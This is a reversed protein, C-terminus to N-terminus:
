LYLEDGMLAIQVDLRPNHYRLERQMLAAHSVDWFENANRGFEQLHSLIVRSPSLSLIFRCFPEILPLEEKLACGRGLWVHAFLGDLSGLAPLKDPDYRRVDGPLLWRKGNFEALYGMAPVGRRGDPFAPDPEWHLGDFPILTLKGMHLPMLAQPIILKEPPPNLPLLLDLMFEPVIWRAPFALMRRLLRLDLHDAHRHTLVVYDLAALPSVDV